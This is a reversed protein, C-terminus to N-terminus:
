ILKREGIRLLLWRPFEYNLEQTVLWEIVVQGKGTM